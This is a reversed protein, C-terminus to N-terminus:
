DFLPHTDADRSGVLCVCPIGQAKARRAVEVPAKGLSSTADWRGEGTLVFSAGRMAEDLSVEDAVFAAGERFRAHLVAYLGDAMGGAAGAGPAEPASLIQALRELGEALIAVEEPGAGKQPGFVQAAGRPGLLPSQVDLLVEIPCHALRSDLRSTD